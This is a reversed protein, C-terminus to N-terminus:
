TRGLARLWQALGPQAADRNSIQQPSHFRLRRFASPSLGYRSKFARSCGAGNAFGNRRAVEHFPEGNTRELDGFVNSLRWNRIVSAVGGLSEFQRYLTPRSVGFVECIARADLDPDSLNEGIYAKVRDVLSGERADPALRQRRPMRLCLRVIEATVQAVADIEDRDITPCIRLLERMHSALLLNATDDSRLVLGHFFDTTALPHLVSKPVIMTINSFDPARTEFGFALDFCCVDGPEVSIETGEAQGTFGGTLYIQVMMHDIQSRQIVAENRSFAQASASSQGILIPGLAYSSITAEFESGLPEVDFLLEVATRWEQLCTRAAPATPGITFSPIGTV